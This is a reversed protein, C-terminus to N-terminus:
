SAQRHDFADLVEAPVRGRESVDYGQERAWNRVERLNRSPSSKSTAGSKKRGGVRRAVSAYKEFAARLEAAHEENLDIEYQAGDLGFEVTEHAESEDLDDILQVITRQAMQNRWIRRTAPFPSGAFIVSRVRCIAAM